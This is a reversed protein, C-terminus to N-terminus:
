LQQLKRGFPPVATAVQPRPTPRRQDATRTAAAPVVLTTSAAVLALVIALGGIKRSVVKGDVLKWKKGSPSPTAFLDDRLEVVGPRRENTQRADSKHAVAVVPPDKPEEDHALTQM